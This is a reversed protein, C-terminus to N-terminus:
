VKTNFSHQRYNAKRQGVAAELGESSLVEQVGSNSITGLEREGQGGDDGDGKDSHELSVQGSNSAGGDCRVFAIDSPQLRNANQQKVAMFQQKQHNTSRMYSSLCRVSKAQGMRGGSLAAGGAPGLLSEERDVM